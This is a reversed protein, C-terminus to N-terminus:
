VTGPIVCFNQSFDVCCFEHNQTRDIPGNVECYGRMQIDKFKTDM